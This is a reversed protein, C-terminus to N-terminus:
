KVIRKSKTLINLKFGILSTLSLLKSKQLVFFIILFVSMELHILDKWRYNLFKQNTKQFLVLIEFKFHSKRKGLLSHM